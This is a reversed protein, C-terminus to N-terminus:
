ENCGKTNVLAEAFALDVPTTIKINEPNGEVIFVPYGAKEALFAEDTATELYGGLRAKKYSKLLVDMQFGQPTAAKWLHERSKTARIFGEADVEKITDTVKTAAIAAGHIGAEVAVKQIVQETVFPRVGDHVLVVTEDSFDRLSIKRLGEYVSEARTKKGKVIHRIKPFSTEIMSIFDPPLVVAIEEIYSCDMFCRITHGLVSEGSLRMFQKPVEQGFRTGTGAAAIIVRVDM